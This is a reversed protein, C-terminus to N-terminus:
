LEGSERLRLAILVPDNPRPATLEPEERWWGDVPTASWENISAVDEWSSWGADFSGVFDVDFRVLHDGATLVTGILCPGQEPVLNLLIASSIVVGREEFLKYLAPPLERARLRSTGEIIKEKSRFAKPFRRSM